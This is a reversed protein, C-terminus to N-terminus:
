RKRNSFDALIRVTAIEHPKLTVELSSDDVPVDKLDDEMATTLWARQLHFLPFQLVARNETGSTELLRLVSGNGDEAAKWNEVVVRPGKVQLFSTSIPELLEPPNGVKDQDIVEDIALPTMAARGFHALDSPSLSGGSTMAYRFTMEGGQEARYNTHWYNNFAYSFITSSAPKFEAPWVGRNVDGLTVLPADIPTIALEFDPGSAKVWHGVSFWELGAGKLMDQAPNVWGNQIEYQFSPKPAKIPFAFYGSEKTRVAEKTLRNIFEIKKEDDYLLIDTRVLPTHVGKAELVLIKGFPTTRLGVIRGGSSPTIKLDAYPLSKRMHVIQTDDSGGQVYLYQDFLYPSDAAVLERNLQKDFIGKISGTAPDAEVRYYKNEIVNGPTEAPM